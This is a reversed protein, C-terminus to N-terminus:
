SRLLYQRHLFFPLDRWDAVGESCAADYYKNDYCIFCHSPDRKNEPINQQAPCVDCDWCAKSGPVKVVVAEAFGDCIQETLFEIDTRWFEERTERIIKSINM